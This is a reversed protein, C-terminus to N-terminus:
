SSVKNPMRDRVEKVQGVSEICHGMLKDHVWNKREPTRELHPLLGDNQETGLPQELNQQELEQGLKESPLLSRQCEQELPSPVRAVSGSHRREHSRQKKREREIRVRAEHAKTACKRQIQVRTQIPNTKTCTNEWHCTTLPHSRTEKHTRTLSNHAQYIM